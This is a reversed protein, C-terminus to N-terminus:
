STETHMMFLWCSFLKHSMQPIELGAHFVDLKIASNTAWNLRFNEQVKRLTNHMNTHKLSLRPFGWDGVFMQPTSKRQSYQDWSKFVRNSQHWARPPHKPRSVEVDTGEVYSGPRLVFVVNGESEHGKSNKDQDLCRCIAFQSVLSPAGLFFIELLPFHQPQNVDNIRFRVYWTISIQIHIWLLTKKPPKPRCYSQVNSKSLAFTACLGSVCLLSLLVHGRPAEPNVM